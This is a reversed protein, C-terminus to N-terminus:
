DGEERGGCEWGGCGQRFLYWRRLPLPRNPNTRLSRAHRNYDMDAAVGVHYFLQSLENPHDGNMMNWQYVADGFSASIWGYQELQYENYGIGRNPYKWYNMIQAVATATCGTPTGEPCLANYPWWQDWQTTLLPGVGGGSKANSMAQGNKLRTWKNQITPETQLNSKTVAEIQKEYNGLWGRVHAPMNAVVFNNDYSYGLIPEIREDAAVIVFGKPQLAFVYYCDTVAGTLSDIAQGTYVLQMTQKSVSGSKTGSGKSSDGTRMFTYGVNLAQAPTVHTERQTADGVVNATTSKQAFLTVSMTIFIGFLLGKKMSRARFGHRACRKYHYIIKRGAFICKKLM